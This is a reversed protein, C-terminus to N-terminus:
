SNIGIYLENDDIYWKRHDKVSLASNLMIITGIWGCVSYRVNATFQSSWFGQLCMHADNLLM